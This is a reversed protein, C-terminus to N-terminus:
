LVLVSFRCTNNASRNLSGSHPPVVPGTVGTGGSVVPLRLSAIRLSEIPWRLRVYPHRSPETIKRPSKWGWVSPCRVASCALWWCGRFDACLLPKTSCSLLAFAMKDMWGNLCYGDLCCKYWCVTVVMVMRMILRCILGSNNININNTSTITKNDLIVQPQSWCVHVPRCNTKGKSKSM